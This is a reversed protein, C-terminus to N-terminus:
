KETRRPFRRLQALLRSSPRADKPAKRGRAEGICTGMRQRHLRAVLTTPCALLRAPVRFEQVMRQTSERKVPKSNWLTWSTQSRGLRGSHLSPLHRHMAPALRSRLCGGRPALIAVNMFTIPAHGSSPDLIIDGDAILAIVHPGGAAHSGDTSITDATVRINGGSAFVSISKDLLRLNTIEIDGTNSILYGDDIGQGCGGSLITTDIVPCTADPTPVDAPQWDPFKLDDGKGDELRTTHVPDNWPGSITCTNDTCWEPTMAPLASCLNEPQGADRTELRRFRIHETTTARCYQVTGPGNYRVPGNFTDGNAFVVIRPGDCRSADAPTPTLCDAPDELGDPGDLEHNPRDCLSTDAPTSTRCDAPDAIGDPGNLAEEPLYNSEYHLQYHAFVAREYSRTIETTRQCRDIDGVCGSRIEVTIDRTEQLPRM